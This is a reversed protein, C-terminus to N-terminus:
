SFTLPRPPHFVSELNTTTYNEIYPIYSTSTTPEPQVETVTAVTYFSSNANVTIMPDFTVSIIVWIM